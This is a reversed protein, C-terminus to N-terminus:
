RDSEAMAILITKGDKNTGSIYKLLKQFGQSIGDKITDAKIDVVAWMCPEYEREEFGQYVSVLM